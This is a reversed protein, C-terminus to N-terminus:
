NRLVGFRGIGYGLAAGMFVDSPFHASLTLRSFGVLTALGYAAYPVWKRRSYRRAVVTAASFAMITHTSPFSGIGKLAGGTPKFWSDTLPANPPYDQPRARRGIDKMVTSLIASDAMTEGALLATKRMYSNKSLSGVVFLTAPGVGIGVGTATSTFVSNFGQFTTTRHFYGATHSDTAVLAATISIVALAPIWARTRPARVPFPWIKAQDCLVNKPLTRLSVPRDGPESFCTSPPKEPTRAAPPVPEQARLTSLFLLCVLGFTSLNRLKTLPTM